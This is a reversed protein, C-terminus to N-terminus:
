GDTSIGRWAFIAAILAVLAGGVFALPLGSVFREPIAALAYISTTVAIGVAGIQQDIQLLGSATGIAIVVLAGVPVNILLAWRWSLFDTLIGGLMLGASAGAASVAIFLSLGKTQEGRRAGHGDGLGLREPRGVSRWYRSRCPRCHPHQIRPLAVVVIMLDMALM